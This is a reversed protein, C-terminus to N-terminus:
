RVIVLVLKKETDKLESLEADTSSTIILVHAELFEHYQMDIAQARIKFLTLLANDTDLRDM